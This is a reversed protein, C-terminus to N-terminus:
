IKNRLKELLDKLEEGSLENLKGTKKKFKMKKEKVKELKLKIKDNMEKANANCQRKNEKNKLPQCEEKKFNKVKLLNEKHKEEREIYKDIIKEKIERIKKIFETKNIKNKTKEILLGKKKLYDIFLIPRKIKQNKFDKEIFYTSAGSLDYIEEDLEKGLKVLELFHPNNKSYKESASYYGRSISFPMAKKLLYEYRAKKQEKTLGMFGKKSQYIDDLTGVM